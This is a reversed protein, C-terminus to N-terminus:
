FQLMAVMEIFTAVRIMRIELTIVAIGLTYSYSFYLALRCVFAINFWTVLLDICITVYVICLGFLLHPLYKFYNIKQLPRVCNLNIYYSYLVNFYFQYVFLNCLSHLQFIHIFVEKFILKSGNQNCDLVHMFSCAHLIFMNSYIYIAICLLDILRPM